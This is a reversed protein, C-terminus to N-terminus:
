SLSSNKCKNVSKLYAITFDNSHLGVCIISEYHEFENNAWMEIAKNHPYIYPLDIRYEKFLAVLNKVARFDSNSMLYEDELKNKYEERLIEKTNFLSVIIAIKRGEMCGFIKKLVEGKYKTNYTETIRAFLDIMCAALLSASLGFILSYLITYFGSLIPPIGEKQGVQQLILPISGMTALLVSFLMLKKILRDKETTLDTKYIKYSKKLGKIFSLRQNSNSM